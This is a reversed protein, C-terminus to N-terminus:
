GKPRIKGIRIRLLLKLNSKYSRRRSVWKRNSNSFIKKKLKQTLRKKRKIKNNKIKIRNKNNSMNNNKKKNPKNRIRQSKKNEFKNKNRFSTKKKRKMKFRLRRKNKLRKFRKFKISFKREITWWTLRKYKVRMEVRQWGKPRIKGIRIRLLLKLNSRYSRRRSVWKRSLKIKWSSKWRLSLRRRFLRSLCRPIMWFMRRSLVRLDGILGRPSWGAWCLIGWTERGKRFWMMWCPDSTSISM